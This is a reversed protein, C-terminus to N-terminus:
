GPPLYVMGGGAKACADIAKQIAPTANDAKSGTAGFDKVNFIAMGAALVHSNASSSLVLLLGLILKGVRSM